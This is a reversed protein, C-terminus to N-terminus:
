SATDLRCSLLITKLTLKNLIEDNNKHNKQVSTEYQQKIEKEKKNNKGM